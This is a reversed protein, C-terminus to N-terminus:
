VWGRGNCTRIMLWKERDAPKGAKIDDYILSMVIAQIHADPVIPTMGHAECASQYVDTSITGTTALIGVRKAGRSAARAATEEIMNIIPLETGSAIQDFFSHATNCPIALYILGQQM